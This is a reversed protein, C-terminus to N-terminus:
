RGPSLLLTAKFSVVISSRILMEKSACLVPTRWKNDAPHCFRICCHQMNFKAGVLILTLARHLERTLM